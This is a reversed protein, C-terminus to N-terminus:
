EVTITRGISAIAKRALGRPFRDACPPRPAIRLDRVICVSGGSRELVIKRDHYCELEARHGVSIITFQEPQQLLLGMLRDQSRPDLASTAEDMVIIDPKHLLVRAFALRQKEGGSLIQDWPAEVDLRDLYHELGVSRFAEAVAEDSRADAADPYTAARRLTGLPVYPRQPLFFVNADDAVEIRGHGWPWLGAIARLLSSKGTGSDGVVLLREGPRVAVDVKGVLPTGDDLAVCLNHLRLAAEAGVRDVTIRSARNGREAQELDDLTTMLSAVRRASAAWDALKPYNDVLWAFAAQVITFASAAQMVQGLTLSGNLFKPACILVPLVPAFFGSTQSIFTTKLCQLCVQRWARLVQCLSREVGAREESEGRMLAVSEANERLRTLVYRYEAEAQNRTETAPIFSRGVWAISMTALVAYAIATIVLFGPITVQIGAVELQLPGGISWLVFVFTAASLMASILGTAFDVPAETAIRLDEAIRFEPNKPEGGLLNLQYYRGNALWRDMLYGNLWARWRRQLTMRAWIQGLVFLVSAALLPFYILSLFFVTGTQYRELADFLDRSWANIGYLTGLNGLIILFSFASLLWASRDGSRGWFLIASCWFRPILNACGTLGIVSMARGKLWQTLGKTFPHVVAASVSSSRKSGYADILCPM